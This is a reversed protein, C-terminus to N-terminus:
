DDDIFTAWLKNQPNQESDVLRERDRERDRDRERETKAPPGFM